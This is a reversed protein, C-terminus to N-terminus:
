TQQVRRIKHNRKPTRADNPRPHRQPTQDRQCIRETPDIQATLDPTINVELEKITTVFKSKEFIEIQQQQTQIKLYSKKLEQKLEIIYCQQNGAGILSLNAHMGKRGKM